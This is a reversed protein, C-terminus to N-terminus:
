RNRIWAVAILVGFFSVAVVTFCISDVMAQTM